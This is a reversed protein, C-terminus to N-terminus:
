GTRGAIGEAKRKRGREETLVRGRVWNVRSMGRGAGAGKGATFLWLESGEWPMGSM